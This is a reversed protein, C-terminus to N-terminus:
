NWSVKNIWGISGCMEVVKVGKTVSSIVNELDEMLSTEKNFVEKSMWNFRHFHTGDTKVSSM